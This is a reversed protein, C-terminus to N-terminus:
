ADAVPTDGSRRKWWEWMNGIAIALVCWILGTAAGLGLGLLVRTVTLELPTHLHCFPKNLSALGRIWMKAPSFTHMWLILGACNPDHNAEQVLAYIEDPRTLLAKFRVTLPIHSSDDLGKAVEKANNEVEQLPGPGYLHQSGCVFWIEPSALNNM